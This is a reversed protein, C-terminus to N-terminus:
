VKLNKFQSDPKKNRAVITFTTFSMLLTLVLMTKRYPKMANSILPQFYLICKSHGPWEELKRPL